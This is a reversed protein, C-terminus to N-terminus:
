SQEKLWEYMGERTEGHPAGASIYKEWVMADWEGWVEAVRTMTPILSEAIAQWMETLKEVVAEVQGRFETLAIVTQQGRRQFELLGRDADYKCLLKGTDPDRIDEWQGGTESM